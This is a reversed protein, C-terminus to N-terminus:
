KASSAQRVLDLLIAGLRDQAGDTSMNHDTGELITLSCGLRREVARPSRGLQAGADVLGIDGASYVLVLHQGRKRLAAIRGAVSRARAAPSRLLSALRTRVRGTVAGLLHRAIAGVRIQGRLLRSWAEKRKLLSAYTAPSRFQGRMIADLDESGDWDFAHLNICAAGRVREDACLTHFALYAGSCVGFLVVGEPPAVAGLVARLEDLTDGVYLPYKGDPREDTEGVGRLDWRLSAIGSAALWRAMDTTQRGYGSRINVGSNIFIVLPAGTERRRPECVIGTAHPLRIPRERWEAGSIAPEPDLPRPAAQRPPAGETAFAVVQAFAARPIEAGYPNALFQSQGPFPGTFATAGRGAYFAVLSAPDAGLLLVRAPVAGPPTAAKIEAKALDALFEPSLRHGGIVPTAPDQPIATGDPMTDATQSWLTMARLYSRGSAFPSLLVLGEGEGSLAALTAGVRLGVLYVEKAGDQERLFRVARRIAGIQGDLRGAGEDTSEGEGPYDIRLTSLGAADLRLALDRWGRYTAVAEFGLPPCLLVARGTRGPSYWGFVGDFAVPEPLSM